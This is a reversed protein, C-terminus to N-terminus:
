EDGEERERAEEKHREKRANAPPGSARPRYPLDIEIDNIAQRRAEKSVDRNKGHKRRYNDCARCLVKNSEANFIHSIAPPEATNCQDCNMPVGEERRKKIDVMGQRLIEKSVDRDKGHKPYYLDCAKCLVKVTIANYHHCTEPIEAANCQECHVPIGDERQKKMDQFAQRGTENAPDRDRSFMRRYSDCASCLVQGVEANYIHQRTAQLSEPVACSDCLVYETRRKSIM